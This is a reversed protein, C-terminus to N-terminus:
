TASRESTVRGRVDGAALRYRELHKEAAVGPVDRAEGRAQEAGTVCLQVVDDLVCAYGRSADGLNCIQNLRAAPKGGHRSPDHPPLKQSPAEPREKMSAGPGNLDRGAARRGLLM